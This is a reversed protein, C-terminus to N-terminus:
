SFQFMCSPDSTGKGQSAISCSSAVAELPQQYVIQPKEYPKKKAQIEKKESAKKEM